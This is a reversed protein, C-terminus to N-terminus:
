QDSRGGSDSDLLRCPQEAEILMVNRDQNRRSQEFRETARGRRAGLKKRGNFQLCQAPICAPQALRGVDDHIIPPALIRLPAIFLLRLQNARSTGSRGAGVCDFCEHKLM